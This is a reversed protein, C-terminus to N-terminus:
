AITLISMFNLMDAMATSSSLRKRKQSLACVCSFHGPPGVQASFVSRPCLYSAARAWMFRVSNLMLQLVVETCVGLSRSGMCCKGDQAVCCSCGMNVGHWQLARSGTEQLRIFLHLYFGGFACDLLLSFVDVGNSHSLEWYILGLYVPSAGYLMSMCQLRVVVAEWLIM